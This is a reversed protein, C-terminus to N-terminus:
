KNTYDSFSTSSTSENSSFIRPPASPTVGSLRISKGEISKIINSFGELTKNDYENCLTSFVEENLALGRSDVAHRFGNISKEREQAAILKEYEAKYDVEQEELIENTQEESM